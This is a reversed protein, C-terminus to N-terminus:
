TKTLLISCPRSVITVTVLVPSVMKEMWPKFSQSGKTSESDKSFPSPHSGKTSESDSPFPSPATGSYFRPSLILPFSFRPVTFQRSRWLVRTQIASNAIFRSAMIGFSSPIVSSFQFNQRSASSKHHIYKRHLHYHQALHKLSALM